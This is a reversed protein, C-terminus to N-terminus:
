EMESSASVRESLATLAKMRESKPEIMSILLASFHYDNTDVLREHFSKMAKASEEYVRLYIRAVFGSLAVALIGLGGAALQEPEGAGAGAVLLTGVAAVSALGIGVCVIGILFSQKNQRLAQDYYQKLETEHKFFLNAARKEHNPKFTTLVNEYEFLQLQAGLSAVRARVMLLAIALYIEAFALGAFVIWCITRVTASLDVSALFVALGAILAPVLASGFVIVTRWVRLGARENVLADVRRNIREITSEGDSEQYYKHHDPDNDAGVLAFKM